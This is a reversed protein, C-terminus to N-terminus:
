DFKIKEELADLGYKMRYSNVDEGEFLVTMCEDVDRAIRQAFNMGQGDDDGDALVVVERNRLARAFIPLWNDVGPIGIVPLGLTAVTM